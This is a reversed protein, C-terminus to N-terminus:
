GRLWLEEDEPYMETPYWDLTEATHAAQKMVHHHHALDECDLMFLVRRRLEDREKPDTPAQGALVLFRAFRQIVADDNM